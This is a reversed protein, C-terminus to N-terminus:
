PISSSARSTISCRARYRATRRHDERGPGEPRSNIGGRRLMTGSRSPFLRTAACGSVPLCCCSRMIVGDPLRRQDCNALLRTVGAPELRGAAARGPVAPLGSALPAATVGAVHPYRLLSALATVTMSLSPHQGPRVDRGPVRECGRSPHRRARGAAGAGGPLVVPRDACVQGRHHRGPVLRETCYEM